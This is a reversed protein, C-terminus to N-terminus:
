SGKNVNKIAKEIAGKVFGRNTKSPTDSQWSYFLTGM